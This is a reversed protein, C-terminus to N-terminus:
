RDLEDLMMDTLALQVLDAMTQRAASPDAAEIATFVAIHDGLPDRPSRPLRQKFHTTWQVAAGISSSLSALAENDSAALVADHFSRDASQWSAQGFESSEMQALADRMVQLHDDTRREAALAAAAPEVVGRLEFLDRVFRERPKGAFMWRLIDPDLMNWRNRPLVRTGAKPRSELLGKATLIRIAERYATRSVGMAASHEIEGPFRDGPAFRGSLIATGLARAVSQHIRLGREGENDQAM